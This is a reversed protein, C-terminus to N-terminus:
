PGSINEEQRQKWGLFQSSDTWMRHHPQCHEGYLCSVHDSGVPKGATIVFLSHHRTGARSVASVTHPLPEYEQQCATLKLGAFLAVTLRHM